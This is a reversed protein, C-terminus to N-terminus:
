SSLWPRVAAAVDQPSRVQVAQLGAARAGQINPETDDFFLIREPPVGIERAVLEFAAREPKRVGIRHSVFHRRLPQLAEFHRKSWVAHHEENTNSFLYQPIRPALRRVLSCTPELEPGLVRMWGDDFQADTLDIALDRRLSRYFAERGIEGREHRQYDEGHSFRGKVHEFPVGALQAWRRFVRDFDIEAIVGGFDYLLAEVPAPNM